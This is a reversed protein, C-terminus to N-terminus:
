NLENAQKVGFKLRTLAPQKFRIEIDGQDAIFEVTQDFTNKNRAAVKLIYEYGNTVGKTKIIYDLVDGSSDPHCAISTLITWKDTKKLSNLYKFFLKTNKGTEWLIFMNKIEDNCDTAQNLEFNGNFISELDKKSIKNEEVILKLFIGWCKLKIKKVIDAHYEIKGMLSKVTEGSYLNSKILRNATKENVFTLDQDRTEKNVKLLEDRCEMIFGISNSYGKEEKFTIFEKEKLFGLVCSCYPRNKFKFFDCGSIINSLWVLFLVDRTGGDGYKLNLQGERGRQEYYQNFYYYQFLFVSEFKELTGYKEKIEKLDEEINKDGWIYRAEIVQNGETISNALFKKCEELTGWFPIDLKSFNYPTLEKILEKEFEIVKENREKKIIMLDLDAEGLFEYRAPSGFFFLGIDSPVKSGYVKMSAIEAHKKVINTLNETAEICKKFVNKSHNEKEYEINKQFEKM